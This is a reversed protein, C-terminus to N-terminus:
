WRLRGDRNKRRVFHREAGGCRSPISVLFHVDHFAINGEVPISLLAPPNVVDVEPTEDLIDLIRESSGITKQVQAYLDGM